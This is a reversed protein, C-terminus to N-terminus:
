DESGSGPEYSLGSKEVLGGFDPERLLLDRLGLRGRHIYTKVTGIPINMIDAIEEYSAQNLYFLTLATRHQVPLRSVLQQISRSLDLKDIETATGGGSDSLMLHVGEDSKEDLSVEIGRVNRKKIESLCLNRAIRYLWTSFLCDGRFNPLAQYARLFVEQAFDENEEAGLMRSVLWYVKHRYRNVLETFADHDRKRCARVLEEDTQEALSRRQGVKHLVFPEYGSWDRSFTLTSTAIRPVAALSQLYGPVRLALSVQPVSRLNSLGMEPDSVGQYTIAPGSYM